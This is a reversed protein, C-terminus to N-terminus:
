KTGATDEIRTRRHMMWDLVGPVFWAPLLGYMLFRRAAVATEEVEPAAHQAGRTRMM